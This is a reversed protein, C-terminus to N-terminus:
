PSQEVRAKTELLIQELIKEIEANAQLIKLREPLATNLGAPELALDLTLETGGLTPKLSLQIRSTFEFTDFIWFASLYAPYDNVVQFSNGALRIPALNFEIPCPGAGGQMLCPGFDVQYKEKWVAWSEPRSLFEAVRDRDADIWIAARNGQYFLEYFEGRNGKELLEAAKLGPDFHAQMQAAGLEVTEAMTEPFNISEMVGKLVSSAVEEDVQYRFTTRTLSGTEELEMRLLIMGRRKGKGQALYWLAQAPKEYVLMSKLQVAVGLLRIRYDIADGLQKFDRDSLLEVKVKNTSLLLHETEMLYQEVEPPRAKVESSTKYGIFRSTYSNRRIGVKKEQIKKACGFPGLLFLIAALSIIKMSNTGAFEPVPFLRQPRGPMIPRRGSIEARARNLKLTM